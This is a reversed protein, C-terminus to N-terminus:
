EGDGRKRRGGNARRRLIGFSVSRDQEGVNVNEIADVFGEDLVDVDDDGVVHDSLYRGFLKRNRAAHHDFTLAVRQHGSQDVRVRM